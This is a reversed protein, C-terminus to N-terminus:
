AVGGNSSQTVGLFELRATAVTPVHGDLVLEPKVREFGAVM